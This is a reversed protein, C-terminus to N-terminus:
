ENPEVTLVAGSELDMGDGLVGTVFDYRVMLWVGVLELDALSASRDLPCYFRDPSLPGCGFDGAPRTVDALTYVNCPEAGSSSFGAKCGASPEAGPEDARFVIIRDVEVGLSEVVDGVAGLARHDADATNTGISAARAGALAADRVSHRARFMMGIEFVGFLLGFLLSGVLAFELATAGRDRRRM